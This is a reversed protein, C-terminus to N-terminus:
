IGPALSSVGSNEISVSSCRASSISTSVQLAVLLKEASVSRNKSTRRVAIWGRLRPLLNASPPSGCVSGARCNGALQLHSEINFSLDTRHGINISHCECAQEPRKLSHISERPRHM